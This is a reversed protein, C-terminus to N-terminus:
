LPRHKQRIFYCIQALPKSQMGQFLFCFTNAIGHTEWGMGPLNQSDFIGILIANSNFRSGGEGNYNKKMDTEKTLQTYKGKGIKRIFLIKILNFYILFIIIHAFQPHAVLDISSTIKM